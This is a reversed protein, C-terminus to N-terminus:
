NHFSVSAINSRGKKLILWGLFIVGVAVGFFTVGAIIKLINNDTHSSVVM